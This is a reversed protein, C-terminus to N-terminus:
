ASLKPHRLHFGTAEQYARAFALLKAEGYLQGLFTLSVPIGPGGSDSVVEDQPTATPPSADTERFGNPFILAPPGSLNTAVACAAFFTPSKDIARSELSISPTLAGGGSNLVCLAPRISDASAGRRDPDNWLESGCDPITLIPTIRSILFSRVSSSCAAKQFENLHKSGSCCPCRVLVSEDPGSTV